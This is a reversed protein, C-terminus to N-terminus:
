LARRVGLAALFPEVTGNQVFLLACGLERDERERTWALPCAEADVTAQSGPQPPDEAALAHPLDSEHVWPRHEGQDEEFAIVINPTVGQAQIARGSPMYYLATTLKIAGEVPLPYVSQVSGKGFSRQGLVTARGTDRLAGAVIESASASGGNILVAVPLGDALDGLSASFFKERDAQRGRISVIVGTNLFGDAIEVAQDLLGGPNNRLDLVYGRLRPGLRQRIQAIAAELDNGARISFRSVRLYGVDGEIRWRVAQVTIIARTLTVDFPVVGDRLITIRVPTGPKGRLVEVVEYLNQGEISVGEVHTIRDGPQIGVADAPTGEIPSVVKVLGDEMTIEIGLGGFQGAASELTERFESATLYSSHPDLSEVMADLGAEIAADPNAPGDIAQVGGIAADVLADDELPHIYDRRM